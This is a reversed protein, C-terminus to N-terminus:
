MFKGLLARKIASYGKINEILSLQASQQKQLNFLFNSFANLKRIDEKSTSNDACEKTVNSERINESYEPNEALEVTLIPEPLNGVIRHICQFYFSIHNLIM